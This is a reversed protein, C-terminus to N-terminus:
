SGEGMRYGHGRVTTIYRPDSAPDGLKRRLNRVHVDVLHERTPGHVGMGEISTIRTAHITKGSTSVRTLMEWGEVPYEVVVQGGNRAFALLANIGAQPMSEAVRRPVIVVSRGALIEPSLQRALATAFSGFEQWLSNFWGYSCDLESFNTAEAAPTNPLLLLIDGEARDPPRSGPLTTEVAPQVTPERLTSLGFLILVVLAVLGIDWKISALSSKERRM